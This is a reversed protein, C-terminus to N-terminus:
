LADHIEEQVEFQGMLNAGVNWDGLKLAQGITDTMEFIKWLEAQAIGFLEDDTVGPHEVRVREMMTSINRGIGEFHSASHQDIAALMKVNLPPDIKSLDIAASLEVPQGVNSVLEYGQGLVEAVKEPTPRYGIPALDTWLATTRAIEGYDDFVFEIKPPTADPVNEEIIWRSLRDLPATLAEASERHLMSTIRAHEAGLAQSGYSESKSSLNTGNVFLRVLTDVYEALAQPDRTGPMELFDADSGPYQALNVISRDNLGGSIQQLTKRDLNYTVGDRATRQFIKLAPKDLIEGWSDIGNLKVDKIWWWLAEFWGVGMPNDSDDGFAYCTHELFHKPYGIFERDGGEVIQILSYRGGADIPRDDPIRDGEIRKWRFEDLNEPKFAIPLKRGDIMEWGFSVLGWGMPEALLLPNALKGRCTTQDKTLVNRVLDAGITDSKSESARTVMLPKGLISRSFQRYASGLALDRFLSKYERYLGGIQRLTSDETLLYSGFALESADTNPQDVRM